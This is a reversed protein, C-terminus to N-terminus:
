QLHTYSVPSPWLLGCTSWGWLMALFIGTLKMGLPTISGIPKMMSFGIIVLFMIGIHLWLLSREQRTEAKAVVAM